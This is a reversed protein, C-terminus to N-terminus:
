RPGALAFRAGQPDTGVIIHDGGPVEHPGNDITGGQRTVADMAADISEVSFYPQWFAPGAGYMTAGLRLDGLALFRYDGMAGMPMSEPNTWGFLKSYFAHAGDPDPTTLENWVAHGLKGPSFATSTGEVAGRMVYFLAGRPDAAMAIRGVGPIDSPGMHIVGGMARIAEVSADVDDVGVYGIWGPRAGQAAMDADIQMVGGFTADPPGIMRYDMGPMGSAVGITWGVVPEYFARAGELDSTMLEYWIFEGHKNTM